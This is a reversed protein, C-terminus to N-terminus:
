YGIGRAMMWALAPILLMLPICAKQLLRLPASVVITAASDTQEAADAGTDLGKQLRRFQLGTYATIVLLVVFLGLKAHFVPNNNYFTAPKGGALWLTTGAAAAILLAIGTLLYVRNIAQLDQIPIVPASAALIIILGVIIALVALLHIGGLMAALM